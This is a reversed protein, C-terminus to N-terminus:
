ETVKDNFKFLHDLYGLHFDVRSLVSNTSEWPICDLSTCTLMECQWRTKEGRGVVVIWLYLAVFWKFEEMTMAQVKTFNYLFCCLWLLQRGHQARNSVPCCSSHAGNKDQIWLINGPLCLQLNLGKGSIKLTLMGARWSLSFQPPWLCYWLMKCSHCRVTQAPPASQSTDSTYFAWWVCEATHWVCLREATWGCFKLFWMWWSLIERSSNQYFVLNSLTLALLM